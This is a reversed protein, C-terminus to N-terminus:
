HLTIVRIGRLAPSRQLYEELPLPDITVKGYKSSAHLLYLKNNKWIAFGVHSIDLGKNSTVFAIINGNQIKSLTKENLDKKLLCYYVTGSLDKERKEILSKNAANNRLAPYKDAHETMFSINLIGPKGGIESTIEKIIGKQENDQIWDSFYHLRSGYGKIIGNRYRVTRLADLFDEFSPFEKKEAMVLALVTEVFTVCDFSSLDVQLAEKKNGDLNGGKYPVSLFEQAFHLVGGPEKKLTDSLYGVVKLSDEVNGKWNTQAKLSIFIWGSLFFIFIRM